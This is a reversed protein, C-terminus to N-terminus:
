EQTFTLAQSRYAKVRRNHDLAPKWVPSKKIVDLGINDLLYHFPVELHQSNVKGDEDIIFRVVVTATNSNTIKYQEPWYIKGLLYNVWDKNGTKFVAERNVGSTDTLLTGDESFFSSSVIKGHDNIEVAATNGNKHFYNWQGNKKGHLYYGYQSINGNDFWEIEITISDNKVFSSDSMFGNSHWGIRHGTLKGAKYFGSDAIMGNHHYRIYIGELKNDIYRGASELNDNAYFNLSNGNKIKCLSDKFLGRMKLGNTSIYYNNRLWGSDTQEITSYFGASSIDCENWNRDYFKTSVKQATLQL